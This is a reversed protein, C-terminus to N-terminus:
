PPRVRRCTNVRVFHWRRGLRPTQPGGRSPGADQVDELRLSNRSPGSTFTSSRPSSRRRPPEIAGILPRSSVPLLPQCRTTIASHSRDVTLADGPNDPSCRRRSGVADTEGGVFISRAAPMQLCRPTEVWPTTGPRATVLTRKRVLRSTIGDAVEESAPAARQGRLPGSSGPPPPSRSSATRTSRGATCGSLDRNLCFRADVEPRSM